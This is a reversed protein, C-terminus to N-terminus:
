GIQAVQPSAEYLLGSQDSFVAYHCVDMSDKLSFTYGADNGYFRVEFGDPVAPLTGLQDVQAYRRTREAARGEAANIQRALNLAEQRRVRDNPQEAANHRCDVARQLGPFRQSGVNQARTVAGFGIGLTTSVILGRVIYSTRM